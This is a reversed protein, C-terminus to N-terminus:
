VTQTYSMDKLTKLEEPTMESKVDEKLRTAKVKEKLRESVAAFTAPLVGQAIKLMWAEFAAQDIKGSPPPELARYMASLDLEGGVNESFWQMVQGMEAFDLEGSKDADWLLFVDRGSVRKSIVDTLEAMAAEYAPQSLHGAIETMWAKFGRADLPPADSAFCESSLVEGTWEDFRRKALEADFLIAEDQPNSQLLRGAFTPPTADAHQSFHEFILRVERPELTGSADHDWLKFIKVAEQERRLHEHLSAFVPSAEGEKYSAKVHKMWATFDKLRLKGGDAFTLGLAVKKKRGVVGVSGNADLDVGAATEVSEIKERDVINGVTGVDGNGDLDVGSSRELSEIRKKMTPVVAVEELPADGRAPAPQGAASAEPVDPDEEPAELITPPLLGWLRRAWDFPVENAPAHDHLWGILTNVEAAEIFGSADNDIMIFLDQMQKEFKTLKPAKKLKKAAKNKMVCFYYVAGLTALALVLLLIATVSIAVM